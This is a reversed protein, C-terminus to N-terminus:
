AAGEISRLCSYPSILHVRALMQLCIYCLYASKLGRIVLKKVPKSGASNRLGGNSSGNLKTAM